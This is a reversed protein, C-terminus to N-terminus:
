SARKVSLKARPRGSRGTANLTTQPIAPLELDLSRAVGAGAVLHGYTDVTMGINSHGLLAQVAQMPEGANLATTAAYHRLDHWRYRPLGLEDCARHWRRLLNRPDVSTGHATAVIPDDPATHPSAAYHEALLEVVFPPMTVPRDSTKTKTRRRKGTAYDATATISLTSTSWEVDRWRLALLEGQRIGTGAAIAVAITDPSEADRLHRLIAIVDATSPPTPRTRRYAPAKALRAVNRAVHGADAARGLIMRLFGLRKRIAGDAAGARRWSAVLEAVHQESVDVLRLRGLKPRLYTAITYEYTKLSRAGLGPGVLGVWTDCWEGFTLTRDVTVGADVGSALQRLQREAASRTGAFTLSHQGTHDRYRLEFRPTGDRTAGRPRISGAGYTRKM